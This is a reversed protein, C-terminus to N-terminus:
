ITSVGVGLNEVYLVSAVKEGFGAFGQGFFFVIEGGGHDGDHVPEDDETYEPVTKGDRSEVEDVLPLADFRYLIFVAGDDDAAKTRMVRQRFVAADIFAALADHKIVAEASRVISRLQVHIGNFVVPPARLRPILLLVGLRKATLLIRRFVVWDNLPHLCGWVVLGVQTPRIARFGAWRQLALPDTPTGVNLSDRPFLLVGLTASV